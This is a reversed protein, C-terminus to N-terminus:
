THMAHYYKSDDDAISIFYFFPFGTVIVGNSLQSARSNFSFQVEFSEFSEPLDDDVISISM